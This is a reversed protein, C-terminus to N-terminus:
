SFSRLEHDKQHARRRGSRYGPRDDHGAIGNRHGQRRRAPQTQADRRQCGGIQQRGHGEEPRVLSPRRVALLISGLLLVRESFSFAMIRLLKDATATRKRRAKGARAALGGQVAAPVVATMSSDETGRYARVAGNMPKEAAGFTPTM